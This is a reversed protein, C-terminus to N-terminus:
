ITELIFFSLIIKVYIYPKLYGIIIIDLLLNFLEIQGRSTVKFYTVKHKLPVSLLPFSSTNWMRRVM